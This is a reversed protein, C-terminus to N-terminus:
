VASNLVNWPPEIGARKCSRRFNGRDYIGLHREFASRKVGLRAFWIWAAGRLATVLHESRTFGSVRVLQRVRAQSIELARAFDVTTQLANPRGVFAEILRWPLYAFLPASVLEALLGDRSDESTVSEMAHVLDHEDPAKNTAALPKYKIWSRMVAPGEARHSMVLAKRSSSRISPKLGGLGTVSINEHSADLAFSLGPPLYNVSCSDSESPAPQGLNSMREIGFFDCIHPPTPMKNAGCWSGGMEYWSCPVSQIVTPSSFSM